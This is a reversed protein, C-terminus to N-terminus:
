DYSLVPGLVDDTKFTPILNYWTYAPTTMESVSTIVLDYPDCNDDGSTTFGNFAHLEEPTLSQYNFNDLTIGLDTPAFVQINAAAMCWQRIAKYLASIKKTETIDFFQSADVEVEETVGTDPDTIEEPEYELIMETEYDTIKQADEVISTEDLDWSISNDDSITTGGTTPSWDQSFSLCNTETDSTDSIM